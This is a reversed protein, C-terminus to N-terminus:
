TCDLCKQVKLNRIFYKDFITPNGLTHLKLMAIDESPFENLLKVFNMNKISLKCKTKM